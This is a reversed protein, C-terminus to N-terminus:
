KLAYRKNGITEINERQLVPTDSFFFWKLEDNEHEMKYTIMLVMLMSMSMTMSHYLKKKKQNRNPTM